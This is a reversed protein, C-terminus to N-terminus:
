KSSGAPPTGVQLTREILKDDQGEDLWRDCPFYFERGNTLDIEKVIVKELYWGAGPGTGDHGVVVRELEDLTVAEM